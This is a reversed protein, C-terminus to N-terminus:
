KALKQTAKVATEEALKAFDEIGCPEHPTECLLTVCMEQLATEVRCELIDKVHNNLIEFAELEDNVNKM